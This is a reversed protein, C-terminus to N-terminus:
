KIASIYNAFYNEKDVDTVLTVNYDFENKVIDYTFGKKYFIVQAYTEGKDTICSAHTSITGRIFEPYLICTMALSDCNMTADESGNAAYFERIKGFSAAVFHGTENTKDLEEFQKGTWQAAGDCSDLGIITVPVGFDLMRKYAPADGYVNFEAVPSANGPGLGATGMSWIMKIKRMTAPDKDMAKAINTASGLVVIEIEGPYKKVSDIIFDVADTTEAKKTPHILDADGMGDSGFVSFAFIDEGDYNTKAGNYVPVDAGAMELAMLANRTSQELDVNGILTTVGLIEVNSNKAALIIASADDAGTDTDIIIKRKTIETGDTVGTGSLNAKLNKIEESSLGIGKLYKEACKSLNRTSLDKKKDSKKFTFAEKLSKVLNGNLIPEYRFDEKTVGYYNYYTTMYDSVVEDYSAGMLCELIAAVYGARDKGEKCHIAYIGPTESLFRLGEALSKEFDESKFDITLDLTKYKLTSYYTDAFGEFELISTDSDALNLVVTVGAKEMAKDAYSNRGIEPNVPSSTRYLIGKGMGTTNVERFNAFEEDSLEPYDARENTRVVSHIAYGEAYGGKKKMWISVKVPGTVNDTFNWEFTGDEHETKVALGSRTAFDGYAVAIVAYTDAERAFLATEGKDVDTFDSVFPVRYKKGGIKVKVIDGYEYGKAKIEECTLNLYVNGHKNIYSTDTFTRILPCSETETAVAPEAAFVSTDPVAITMFISTLLAAIILGTGTKKKM